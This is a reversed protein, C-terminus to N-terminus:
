QAEPFLALLLFLCLSYPIPFSCSRCVAHFSADPTRMESERSECGHESGSDSQVRARYGVAERKEDVTLFDAAASGRGCRRASPRCRRSGTPTPGLRLREGFAPASGPRCRRRPARSWRCCPRAASARPQGGPLQCLHQRRSHRAADAARRLRARDRAGRRQKRRSSIWTRRRCRWRRGTSGAKSCCRGAPMARRGPYSEELERKLREFQEDSLM